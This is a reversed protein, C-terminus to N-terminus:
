GRQPTQIKVNEWHKLALLFREQTGRALSFAVSAQTHLESNLTGEYPSDKRGTLVNNVKDGTDM